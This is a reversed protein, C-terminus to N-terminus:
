PLILNKSHMYAHLLKPFRRLTHIVAKQVHVEDKHAGFGSTGQLLINKVYAPNRAQWSSEYQSLPYINKPIMDLASTYFPSPSSEFTSIEAGQMVSTFDERVPLASEYLSAGTLAGGELEDIKKNM